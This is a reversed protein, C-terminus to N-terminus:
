RLEIVTFGLPETMLPSRQMESCHMIQSAAQVRDQLHLPTDLRAIIGHNLFPSGRLNIISRNSLGGPITRWGSIHAHLIYEDFGHSRNNNQITFHWFISNQSHRYGELYLFTLAIPESIDEDPFTNNVLEHARQRTLFHTSLEGSPQGYWILGFLDDRNAGSFPNVTAQMLMTSAEDVATFLYAVPHGYPDHLLVPTEIKSTWLVRYVSFAPDLRAYVFKAVRLLAEKESIIGPMPQETDANVSEIFRAQLYAWRQEDTIRSTHPRIGANCSISLICIVLLM